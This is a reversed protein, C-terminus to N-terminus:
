ATAGTGPKSKRMRRRVYHYLEALAVGLLTYFVATLHTIWFSSQEKKELEGRLTQAIAEVQERSVVTLRKATEADNELKKVLEQREAIEREIESITKASINLRGTLIQIRSALDQKPPPSTWVDLVFSVSFSLLAAAFAGMAATWLFEPRERLHLLWANWAPDEKGM